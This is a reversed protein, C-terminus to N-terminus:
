DYVPRFRDCAAGIDRVMIRELVAADSEPPRAGGVVDDYTGSSAIAKQFITPNSTLGRLGDHEIMRELDGSAILKRDLFDLWASQGLERLRDITTMPDEEDSRHEHIRAADSMGEM